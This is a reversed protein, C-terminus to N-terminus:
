YRRGRSEPPYGKLRSVGVKPKANPDRRERERERAREAMNPFPELTRAAQSSTSKATKAIEPPPKLGATAPKEKIVGDSAGLPAELSLEKGYVAKIGRRVNIREKLITLKAPTLEDTWGGKDLFDTLITIENDQLSGLAADIRKPDNIRAADLVEKRKRGLDKISEPMIKITLESLSPTITESM